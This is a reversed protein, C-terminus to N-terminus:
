KNRTGHRINKHIVAMIGIHLLLQIGIVSM